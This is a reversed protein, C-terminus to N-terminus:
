RGEDEGKKEKERVQNKMIAWSFAFYAVAFPLILPALVAYCLGLTVTLLDNPVLSLYDMAGPLAAESIEEETKLMFKTKFLLIILPALRSLELAKSVLFRLHPHRPTPIPPPKTLFPNTSTPCAPFSKFHSSVQLLKRKGLMYNM